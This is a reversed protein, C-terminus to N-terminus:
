HGFIYISGVSKRVRELLYEPEESDKSGAKM